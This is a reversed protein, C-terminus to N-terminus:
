GPLIEAQADCWQNYLLSLNLVAKNPLSSYGDWNWQFTLAFWFWHVWLEPPNYLGTALGGIVGHVWSWEVPWYNLVFPVLRVSSCTFHKDHHKSLFQWFWSGLLPNWSAMQWKSHDGEGLEWEGVGFSFFFFFFTLFSYDFVETDFLFSNYNPLLRWDYVQAKLM